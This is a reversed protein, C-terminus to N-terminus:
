CMILIQIKGFLNNIKKFEIKGQHEGLEGYTTVCFHYEISKEKEILLYKVIIELSENSIIKYIKENQFCNNEVSLKLSSKFYNKEKYGILKLKESDISKEMEKNKKILKKLYDSQHKEVPSVLDSVKFSKKKIEVMEVERKEENEGSKRSEFLNSEINEKEKVIFSVEKLSKKETSERSLFSKKTLTPSFGLFTNIQYSLKSLGSNAYYLFIFYLFFLFNSVALLSLKIMDYGDWQNQNQSKFMSILIITSLALIFYSIEEASNLKNLEIKYPKFKMSLYMGIILFGLIALLNVLKSEKNEFGQSLVAIGQIALKQISYIIDWFFLNEKYPYFFYGYAFLNHATQLTNARKKLYIRILIFLPFLIGFCIIVPISFYKRLREHTQSQYQVSYDSILRFDPAKDSDEINIYIFMEFFDRIVNSAQLSIIVFILGRIMSPLGINKYFRKFDRSNKKHPDARLTLLYFKLYVISVFFLFFPTSISIILKVYIFAIDIGILRFLCQLSLSDSINSNFPNSEMFSSLNRKWGDDMSCIILLIQSHTFLLRLLNSLIANKEEIRLNSINKSMIFSKYITLFSISLQLFLLLLMKTIYNLKECNQCTFKGSIGYGEDCVACLPDKYGKLCRQMSFRPDYATLDQFNKNDGICSDPNPCVLIRSSDSSSRWYGSKLTINNGGFCYFALNESCVSCSTSFDVVHAFSYFSRPCIECIFESNIKEGKGCPRFHYLVKVQSDAIKITKNLHALNLDVAFPQSLDTSNVKFFGYFCLQGNEFKWNKPSFPNINLSIDLDEYSLLEELENNLALNEYGDIFYILALCNQYTEGSVLGTIVIPTTIITDKNSKIQFPITAMTNGYSNAINDEFYNNEHFYSKEIFPNGKRLYLIGGSNAKNKIFSNNLFIYKSYGSNKEFHFVGGKSDIKKKPFAYNNYFKSGSINLSEINKCFMVSGKNAINNVFFSKKITLYNSNENKNEFFLVGGEANNKIRMFVSHSIWFKINFSLIHSDTLIIKIAVSNQTLLLFSKEFKFSSIHCLFNFQTAFFRIFRLFSMHAEINYNQSTKDLFPIKFILNTKNLIIKSQYFIGLMMPNKKQKTILSCNIMSLSSNQLNFIKLIINENASKINVNRLLISTHDVAAQFAYSTVILEKIDVGFFKIENKHISNFLFNVLSKFNSVYKLELLNLSGSADFFININENLNNEFKSEFILINNLNKFTFADEHSFSNFFSANKILITNESDISFIGGKNESYLNEFISSEIKLLNNSLIKSFSGIEVVEIKLFQSNRLILKNSLKISFVGASIAFSSNFKSSVIKVKNNLYISISGSLERSISNEITCDFILVVNLVNFKFTGGDLGVSHDVFISSAVYLFNEYNLFIFGGDASSGGEFRSNTIKIRNGSQIAYIFGGSNITKYNTILCDNIFIQNNDVVLFGGGNDFTEMSNFICHRINIINSSIAYIITAAELNKIEKFYINRLNLYNNNEISFITGKVNSTFKIFTCNHMVIFNNQKASLINSYFNGSKFITNTITINVNNTIIFAFNYASIMDLYLFNRTGNIFNLNIKGTEMNEEKDNFTLNRIYIYLYNFYKGNNFFNYNLDLLINLTEKIDWNVFRCNEILIKSPNLISFVDQSYYSSSSLFTFSSDRLTIAARASSTLFIAKNSTLNQNKMTVNEFTTLGCLFYILRQCQMNENFIVDKLSANLTKASIFYNPQSSGIQIYKQQFFCNIITLNQMSGSSFFFRHTEFTSDILVVFGMNTCEFTANSSSLTMMDVNIRIMTCNELTFNRNNNPATTKIEGEVTGFMYSRYSIDRFLCNKLRVHSRVYKMVLFGHIYNAIGKSSLIKRLELNIFDCSILYFENSYTLGSLVPLINIEFLHFPALIGSISASQINSLCKYIYTCCPLSWFLCNSSAPNLDVGRLTLDFGSFIVNSFTLSMISVQFSLFFTKLHIQSRIALNLPKIEIRLNVNAFRGFVKWISDSAGYFDNLSSLYYTFNGPDLIYHNSLLLINIKTYNQELQKSNLDLFYFSQYLSDFPKDISGCSLLNALSCSYNTVNYSVHINLTQTSSIRVQLLFIFAQLFYLSLM